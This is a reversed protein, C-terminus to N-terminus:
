SPARGLFTHVIGNQWGPVTESRVDVFGNHSLRERFRAAGDFENVSRRLYTYLEGDGTRIRGAPIIVARAVLNWVAAARRSDRVSYEHAAFVGGPKLLALLSRLVPDPDPLNRVLYASLIGDFPGNVGAQALDEARSQVFSV